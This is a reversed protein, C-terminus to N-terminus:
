INSNNLLLSIINSSYASSSAFHGEISFNHAETALSQFDEFVEYVAEILTPASDFKKSTENPATAALWTGSPVVTPIGAAMAQVMLGSSRRRYIERYYPLLLVDATLLANRFAAADPPTEILSVWKTPFSRLRNHAHAMLGEERSIGYTAQILFRARGTKLFEDKLAEVLGPLLHFGKDGRAGGLYAFTIPGNTKPPRNPVKSFGSPIPLVGIKTCGLDKYHAALQKTDTWFAVRTDMRQLKQFANRFTEMGDYRLMINLRPAQPPIQPLLEAVGLFESAGLTHIFVHDDKALHANALIRLLQKAFRTDPKNGSVRPLKNTTIGLLGRRLSAPMNTLLHHSASTIVSRRANNWDVSFRGIIPADGLSVEKFDSHCALLPEIGCSHAAEIVSSTYAHHHGEFGKLSQDVILLRPPM